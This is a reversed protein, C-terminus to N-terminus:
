ASAKRLRCVFFGDWTDDPLVRMARSLRTDLREGNWEILGSRRGSAPVAAVLAAPLEDVSLDPVHRLAQAIVLENEEPAFTCTCYVLVGGPALAACASALLGRQKHACEKIKRPSWHRYSAVDDLRVRAESSCPADLLVRHFRAPVKSGVRRGDTLYLEANEIGCRAFNARMRHFRAKVPEVAAIRGSNQMAAALQLTKGGPAAALDLIEEGPSAELCRAAFVSSPNTPYVLGEAALRSHTLADRESPAITYVDPLAPVPLVDCGLEALLRLPDDRFRLHNVWLGARRPAELAALVREADKGVIEFLRSRFATPTDRM